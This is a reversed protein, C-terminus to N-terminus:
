STSDLSTSDINSNTVVEIIEITEEIHNLGFSLGLKRLDKHHLGQYLGQGAVRCMEDYLAPWQKGDRVCYLIFGTVQPHVEMPFNLWVTGGFILTASPWGSLM